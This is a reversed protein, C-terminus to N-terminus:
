REGEIGGPKNESASIDFGYRRICFVVYICLLAELTYCPLGLIIFVRNCLAVLFLLLLLYFPHLSIGFKKGTITVVLLDFWKEETLNIKVGLM